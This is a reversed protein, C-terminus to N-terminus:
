SVYCKEELGGMTVKVREEVKRKYEEMYAWDAQGTKDIPLM